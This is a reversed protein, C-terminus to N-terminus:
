CQLRRPPMTRVEDAVLWAVLMACLLHGCDVVLVEACDKEIERQLSLGVCDDCVHVMIAVHCGGSAQSKHSLATLLTQVQLSDRTWELGCAAVVAVMGTLDAQTAHRM